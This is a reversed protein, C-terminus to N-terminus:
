FFQVVNSQERKVCFKKLLSPYSGPGVVWQEIELTVSFKLPVQGKQLGQGGFFVPFHYLDGRILKRSLGGAWFEELHRYVEFFV